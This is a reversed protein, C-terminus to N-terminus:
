DKLLERGIVLRQIQNTGEYIQTIKADRMLKEVPYDRMYGYGGLIQVADVTVRMAVDSTFCKAMAGEKTAKMGQDLMWCAKWVLARAAEIQMAMDALMFQIAQFEVTPRGFQKREKAYKLAEDLARRAVGVATAGIMPRTQDLTQMAIKFGSGVEGLVNERPIRVNELIVEAVHSARDGMKKEKKGGYIGPTDGPVLFATIGKIGKSRDVTAFVTYLSAVGGNTIFCKTGNLVWEDGELRATTKIASVDSGAEPETLCFAALNPKACFPKLFKEKQEETGAILLPTLALANNGFTGNIGLCGYAMEEAVIAETIFDVGQGGYEVPVHLNMLGAKFVKEIVQWPIEEKEDYEAAIPIIEKRVFDRAMKQIAKQEETLEFSIM